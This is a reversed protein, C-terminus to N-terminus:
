LAATIRTPLGMISRNVRQYKYRRLHKSGRRLWPALAKLTTSWGVMRALAEPEIHRQTLRDREVPYQSGTFGDNPCLNHSARLSNHRASRHAHRHHGSGIVL